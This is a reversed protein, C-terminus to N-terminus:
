GRRSIHRADWLCTKWLSIRTLCDERSWCQESTSVWGWCTDMVTMDTISARATRTVVTFTVCSHLWHPLSDPANSHRSCWERRRANPISVARLLELPLDYYYHWRKFQHSCSTTRSEYSYNQTPQCSMSQICLNTHIFLPLCLDRWTFDHPLPFWQKNIM